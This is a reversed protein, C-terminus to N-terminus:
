LGYTGHVYGLRYTMVLSAVLLAVVILVDFYYWVTAWVTIAMKKMM